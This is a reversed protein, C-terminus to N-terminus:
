GRYTEIIKGVHHLTLHDQGGCAVCINSRDEVMYDGQKHGDGKAEFNLKISRSELPLLTALDKNLYWQAKKRTSFFVTLELLDLM